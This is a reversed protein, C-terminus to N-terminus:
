PGVRSLEANSIGPREKLLLAFWRPVQRGATSGDDDRTIRTAHWASWEGKAQGNRHGQRRIPTADSILTPHGGGRDCPLAVRAWRRDETNALFAWQCESDGPKRVIDQFEPISQRM